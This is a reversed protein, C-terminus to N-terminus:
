KHAEVERKLNSLGKEFMGGVMADMLIAFYGGTVSRGMDGSMTWTVGTGGDPLSEYTMSGRCGYASGDFILDYRIGSSPSSETITLAGTGSEGIWSQSAGVGASKAGPMVVLTPDAERWPSWKEWMRLDGVYKHIEEPKADIKVSREVTYKTPLFLGVAAIVVILVVIAAIITRIIKM